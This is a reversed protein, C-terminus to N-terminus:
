PVMSMQQWNLLAMEKESDRERERMRFVLDNGLWFGFKVVLLVLGSGWFM